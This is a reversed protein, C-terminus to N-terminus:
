GAADRWRLLGQQALQNRLSSMDGYDLNRYRGDTSIQVTQDGSSLVVVCLGDPWGRGPCSLCRRRAAPPTCFQTMAWPAFTPTSVVMRSLHPTFPLGFFSRTLRSGWRSVRVQTM